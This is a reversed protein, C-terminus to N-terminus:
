PPPRIAASRGASLCRRGRAAVSFVQSGALTIDPDFRNDGTPATDRIGAALAVGNGSVDYGSGTFTISHFATGARSTM